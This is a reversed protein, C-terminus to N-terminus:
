SELLVLGTGESEVLRDAIDILKDPALTGAVHVFRGRDLRFRAESGLAGLLLEGDTFLKTSIPAAFDIPFFAEIQGLTGGQYISLVDNTSNVYIDVVGAIISERLTEDGFKEPQPPIVSYRGVHTFGAPVDADALTYFAGEPATTPDARQTAGGGQDVPASIPGPDFLDDALGDEEVFEVATRRYAPEGDVFLTEELLLGDGDICTDAFEAATIPEFVGVGFTTGSRYVQCRRGIVLRQEGPVLLGAAVADDLVAAVRIASPTLGPRRAIALSEGVGGIRLRDLSAIQVSAVPGGPPPGPATELRSEFPARVWVRDTEQAIQGSPDELLYTIRYSGPFQEITFSDDFEVAVSDPVSAATDSDPGGANSCAAISLSAALAV